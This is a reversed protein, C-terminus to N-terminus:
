YVGFLILMYDQIDTGEDMGAIMGFLFQLWSPKEGGSSVWAEDAGLLGFVM